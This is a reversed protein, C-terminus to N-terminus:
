NSSKAKALRVLNLFEARYGFADKGKASEALSLVDNYTTEVNNGGKLLQGFGAVAVAFRTSEPADKLSSVENGRTIPTTMLISKTGDPKKYRLKLFAYEDGHGASDEAKKEKAYRSPDIHTKGGAPTIEYIATVAHGAGIEGADIKDNNFDERNLLRNEYGVLRYEAVTAPNFEVQIKVDKAITYLTSTAEDVLVKKAENLTDIYAANGNGNQALKQMLADNYNGEGFGLVSLFIGTERKKEVYSKLQEPDTIGVNFDGDTALIVRNVGEKNFHEQALRYADEIGAAGATSGGSELKSLVSLIKQKDKIRTPKLAVESTGAYTVIAVSDEPRLTDVLLTLASKLLPLRDQEMMSGSTDVLFVLNAAPAEKAAIQEGKIGIHILKDGSHWPSPTVTVTPKFPNGDKPTAYDYDFYNIMEEVRVADPPPMEGYTLQRRVFSYSSTDVDISFTSVPDDATIKIPNSKIEEFKDAGAYVPQPAIAVDEVMMGAVGANDISAAEMPAANDSQAQGMVLMESRLRKQPQATAISAPADGRAEAEYPAPPTPAAVEFAEQKDIEPPRQMAYHVGTITIVLAVAATSSMLALSRNMHFERLQQTWEKLRRWPSFGQSNKQQAMDFAQMAAQLARQEAEPTIRPTPPQRLLRDLDKEDM